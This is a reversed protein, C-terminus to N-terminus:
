IVICCKALMPGSLSKTGIEYSISLMDRGSILKSIMLSLDIWIFRKVHFYFQPMSFHHIYRLSILLIEFWCIYFLIGHTSSMISIQLTLSFIYWTNYPTSRLCHYHFRYTVSGSLDIFICLVHMCMCICFRICMYTYYFICIWKVWYPISLLTHVVAQEASVFKERSQNYIKLCINFRIVLLYM